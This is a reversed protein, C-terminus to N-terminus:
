LAVGVACVAGTAMAAFLGIWWGDGLRPIHLRGGTGCQGQALHCPRMPDSQVGAPAVWHGGPRSTRSTGSM